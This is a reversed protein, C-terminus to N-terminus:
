RQLSQDLVYIDMPMVDGSWRGDRFLKLGAAEYAGDALQSCIVHGSRQILYKLGPFWLHLRHVFLYLYDTFSYPVDEYRLAKVAAQELQAPTFEGAINSCWYVDIGEYESLDRIRAGGPEAEILRGGDLLVFAHQLNPETNRHLWSAIPNEALWQGLRILKGVNGAIPVLGITGPQPGM